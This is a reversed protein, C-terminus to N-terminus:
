PSLTWWRRFDLISLQACIRDRIDSKAENPILNMPIGTFFGRSRLDNGKSRIRERAVKSWHDGLDTSPAMVIDPSMEFVISMKERANIM